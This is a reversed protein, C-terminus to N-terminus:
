FLCLEAGVWGVLIVCDPGCPKSHWPMTGADDDDPSRWAISLSDCLCTLLVSCLLPLSPSVFM